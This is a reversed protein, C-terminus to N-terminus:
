KVNARALATLNNDISFINDGMHIFDRDHSAICQLFSRSNAKGPLMWDHLEIIILPTLAVWETNGAFLEHEGGEIDIKVLFPICAPTHAAYLENITVAPVPQGIQTGGGVAATRFGWHGQGPDVIDISGSKSTLAGRMCEIRLDRANKTLLEFNSDEPEIAIVRAEPFAGAFFVPSAGINAGGDVILPTRNSTIAAQYFEGLEHGRGLRGFDYDKNNFVQTAVARDSTDPRYYFDRTTKNFTLSIATIAM